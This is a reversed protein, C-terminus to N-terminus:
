AFGQNSEVCVWKGPGQRQFTEGHLPGHKVIQWDHEPDAAAMEELQGVTMMEEWEGNPDESYVVEGDKTAMACGFGVAIVMDMPALQCATSCCPCGIKIDEAGLPPLHWPRADPCAHETENM